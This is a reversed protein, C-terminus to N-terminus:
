EAVFADSWEPMPPAQGNELMQHWRTDTLRDNMPWPFEYYSFVGGVAIRLKGEVPVVAYIESVYGTAEELVQRSVIDTAVDAVLAAPKDYVASPHDIGEDALADLWFHELTAGYSRIIEYEADTLPVNTLEKISIDRLHGALQELRELSTRDTEGLLQRDSLGERTMRALAGLRAYVQPNPEVYGRDDIEEAGGGAEAYVQKAYLITDHKLETWSGLFTNLEKRVWAPNRMFSPYGAPKVTLLPRLSYLWGWYLNQQWVGPELDGIQTRVKALNEPYGPYDAEGAASLISRAEDSGFAAPIDLGKPLMRREGSRNEKVERYLLRQFIAADLTFRQGLFRFGLIERERDPQITEDYIPLSNIEPPPLARAAAVFSTWKDGDATLTPLDVTEGYADRLLGTLQYFTIDDSRGVFFTSPEYIREWLAQTEAKQLALTLLVASRLEDELKFRFTQRGYWMMAQFYARLQETKDYHGRPLYQSYDEQAAEVPDANGLNMLPSIAVGTHAAILGLEATVEAQVSAPVAAQPDLLRAAVALYGLNRRAATEWGTGRCALDFEEARALMAATLEALAPALSNTETVRLLHDFYLHYNHLMSDTTVFLPVPEYRSREYLTFFEAERSPVVVFGNEILKARAAASLHFQTPNTINGFDAAVKYAPVAPSFAPMTETYVGFTAAPATASLAVAESPGVSPAPRCGSGLLGVLLLVVVWRGLQGRFQNARIM